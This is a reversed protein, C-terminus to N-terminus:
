VLFLIIKYLIEIKYKLSIRYLICFILSYIMSTPFSLIFSCISDKFVNLQTNRYVEGFAIIFYAYFLFLVIEIVFYLIVKIQLIKYIIKLKKNIDLKTEETVIYKDVERMKDEQKRFLKEIIPKSHTMGKLAFNLIKSLLTCIIIVSFNKYISYWFDKSLKNNHFQESIKNNFYLISNLGFNSGLSFFFLSIRLYKLHLPNKFLFANIAENKSLFIIYVIRCFSRKEYQLALNYDYNDLIYKSDHPKKDKCTNNADIKILMYYEVIDPSFIEKYIIQNIDVTTEQRKLSNILENKSKFDNFDKSQSISITKSKQIIREGIMIKNKNKV